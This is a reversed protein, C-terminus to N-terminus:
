VASAHETSLAIREEDPEVVAFSSSHLYNKTFPKERRRRYRILLYIIVAIAVIGTVSGVLAILMVHKGDSVNASPVLEPQKEIGASKALEAFVDEDAPSYLAHEDSAGWDANDVVSQSLEGSESQRVQYTDSFFMRRGIIERGDVSFSWADSSRAGMLHSQPSMDPVSGRPQQAYAQDVIAVVRYFIPEDISRPYRAPLDTKFVTPTGGVIPLGATGNKASSSPVIGNHSGNLTSWLVASADVLFAGGVTWSVQRHRIFTDNANVLVYPEIADIATFLLRVNRPVHGDGPAGRVTVQHPSGLTHEDPRKDRSMEVLYTIARKTKRDVATKSTPYGGLTRPTCVVALSTWSAGYGWDEMGGHVPYVLRGMDGVPYAEEYSGAPGANASMREALAAMIHTDPAPHCNRGECHTMDGWEYGLANTGGHFTIAIRFLHVRYLENLARAAVTQMCKDPHNDFGFDRNPDIQLPIAGGGGGGDGDNEDTPPQQEVRVGQFYGLANTMPVLTSIRTDIMRKAFADHPYNSVMWEIFALVTIPGVVEDGHLEGSVLWQPRAPDSPLTDFNSLEVVWVTCPAPEALSNPATTPLPIPTTSTTGNDNLFPQLDDDSVPIQSCDGVHPLSFRDQASYLRLLTPFLKSLLVLRHHIQAYSLHTYPPPVSTTTTSNTAALTCTPVTLLSVCLILVFLTASCLPHCSRYVLPRRRSSPRYLRM